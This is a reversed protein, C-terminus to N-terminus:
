VGAKASQRILKAEEKIWEQVEGGSWMKRFMTPFKLAEVAQAKVEVLCQAPTKAICDQLDAFRCLTSEAIDKAEDDHAFSFSFAQAANRLQEVQAKIADVAEWCAMPDAEEGVAKAIHEIVKSQESVQAQLKAYGSDSPKAALQNRLATVTETLEVVRRALVENSAPKANLAQYIASVYKAQHEADALAHHHTGVREITEKPNINLLQRGLNVITRVCRENSYRWPQRIGCKDFANALIANDFSPGNGWLVPRQDEPINEGLFGAFDYLVQKLDDADPCNLVARAEESQENWWKITSADTELGYLECSERTITYYFSSGLEGTNIDFFVAGLSIIVANKSTSLTEIDIMVNNM